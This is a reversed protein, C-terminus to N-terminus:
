YVNLDAAATSSIEEQSWRPASSGTGVPLSLVGISLQTLSVSLARGGVTSARILVCLLTCVALTNKSLAHSNNRFHTLATYVPHFCVTVTNGGSSPLPIESVFVVRHADGQTYTYALQLSVLKVKIAIIFAFIVVRCSNLICVGPPLVNKKGLNSYTASCQSSATSHSHHSPNEDEEPDGLCVSGESASAQTTGQNAHDPVVEGLLLGLNVKASM